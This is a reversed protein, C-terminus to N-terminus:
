IHGSPIVTQIEAAAVALDGEFLTFRKGPALWDHPAGSVLFAARGIQHGQADPPGDMEVVVSCADNRWDEKQHDVRAPLAFRQGRPSYNRLGNGVLWRLKIEATRTM